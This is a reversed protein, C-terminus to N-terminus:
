FLTHFKNLPLLLFVLVIGINRNNVKILYICAPHESLIATLGFFIIYTNPTVQEFFNSDNPLYSKKKIIM